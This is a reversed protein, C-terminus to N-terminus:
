EFEGIAEKSLSLYERLQDTSFNTLWEDGSGVIQDALAQKESLLRDIREEMTGICVFKHVQVTRTQGVRHARDTAQAEVAPNWWRDFHFVHNAATLNLGLGGARLSLLFIRPAGTEQAQFAQIMEDRTKAPTGGHLFFTAASLRAKIVKELIHGMERYQSFVLAADGEELLEELMDVLRECKGSRYDLTAPDNELLAPHNCIQKLRTLTALILGRRRIGSASDIQRLSDNVFREYLGAQEATLNCFVKMELKEPLDGAITPDQKTRRLIFPRIMKRLQEARDREGLKEIPVAFKERFDGATGLLGPNLVQMISWLESLHNEIPTGTLAVRRPAYISRIAITAAAAPNKIKQAEDLCIRHWKVRTLEDQDRHALSYSTIVVDSQQAQRAFTEGSLREPGHHVMVRLSKAFRQVERLWNGVVSTPAFLLTPGPSSPPHLISSPSLGEGRGEGPTGPSPSLRERESLLLAILQITKGLGMDDALCAGLGIRDLFTLWHLGRLQYPRLDGDFTKPQPIAEISKGPSQELLQELWSTGSLGIINLGTEAKNATFATRFADALTMQGGQKKKVFDLARRTAELDLHIWRGEHKVLPLNRAVLKEFDAPTLRLSGVAIQWDFNMLSELGFHGTSLEIASGMQETRARSASSVGAAPNLEDLEETPSLVLRLGVEDDAAAAWDPLIVGFERDRLMPAWHRIFAYADTTSLTLQSPAPHALLSQAPPFVEAARSLEALLAAQRKAISRGLIASRGPSQWLSAADLLEGEGNVGQLCLTLTWPMLPEETQDDEEPENLVFCLRLPAAQSDDLQGLWAQAQQAFAALHDGEDEHERMQRTPGLLASLWRVDPAANGASAREHVRQFFPDDSVARRILADTTASLFGEILQAPEAGARCVPPMAAAFGELWQLQTRDSVLVRWCASLSEEEDNSELRPIFQRAGILGVVFRALTAWYAVSPGCSAPLESPLSTLFDVAEAPGLLLAPLHVTRLSRDVATAVSHHEGNGQDHRASAPLALSVSVEPAASALLADSSVEGIAARLAAPDTIAPDGGPTRAWLYLSQDLWCAQLSLSM